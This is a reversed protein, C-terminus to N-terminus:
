ERFAKHCDRCSNQVAEYAARVAPEDRTEAARALRDAANQFTTQDAKFRDPDSWVRAKAHTPPANTEAGFYAWPTDKLRVFADAQAIFRVPDYQKDRLQVGMPEFARLLNKFAARRHAIPQGPLADHAEGCAFLSLATLALVLIPRTRM